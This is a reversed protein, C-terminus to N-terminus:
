LVVDRDKFNLILAATSRLSPGQNAPAIIRVNKCRTRGDANEARGQLLHVQSRLDEKEETHAAQQPVLTVLYMETTKTRDTLRRHDDCLLGLDSALTGIRHEITVRSDWIEQLILDLKDPAQNPVM